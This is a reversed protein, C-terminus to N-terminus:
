KEPADSKKHQQCEYNGFEDIKNLFDPMSRGMGVWIHM